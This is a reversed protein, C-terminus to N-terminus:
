KEKIKHSRLASQLTNYMLMTVTMPGVGGPVPTIFGSSEKATAYEVDGVLRQGSKKSTDAVYNIGCDIVVAGPKIWDKKVMEPCGVAAVLIDASRCVGALDKTKSHCITVTAHNWKLLEAMPTGVIKSRGLVVATAGEVAVGSKHILAMCGHPTCPLFGSSLDGTAVRGENICSLGDVDKDPSVSDTVLHSDIQNDSDLPMQVIVGHVNPDRNLNDIKSLLQDQTITRDLKDLRAEMGLESAMRLKMRIYVNSDERGGVQVIVLKPSFNPDVDKTQDITKKINAKVEGSVEKGSLVVAAKPDVSSVGPLTSLFRRQGHVELVHRSACM